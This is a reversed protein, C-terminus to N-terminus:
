GDALECGALLVEATQATNLQLGRFRVSRNSSGHSSDDIAEGAFRRLSNVCFGSRCEVDVPGQRRM